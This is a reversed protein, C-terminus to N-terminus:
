GIAYPVGRAARASRRRWRVGALLSMGRGSCGLPLTEDCGASVHQSQVHLVHKARAVLGAVQTELRGLRSEKYLHRHTSTSTPPPPKQGDEGDHGWCELPRGSNIGGLSVGAGVRGHSAVGTHLLVSLLIAAGGTNGGHRALVAVPEAHRPHAFLHASAAAAGGQQTQATTSLGTTEMGAGHPGASFQQILELGNGQGRDAMPAAIVPHHEMAADALAIHDSIGGHPEPAEAALLQLGAPAVPHHQQQLWVVGPQLLVLLVCGLPGPPLQQLLHAGM